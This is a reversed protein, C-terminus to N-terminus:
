DDPDEARTETRGVPGQSIHTGYPIDQPVDRVSAVRAVRWSAGSKELVLQQRRRGGSLQEDVAIAVADAPAPEEGLLVWARLDRGRARLDAALTSREPYRRRMEDSLCDLYAAADADKLARFYAQACDAPTAFVPGGAAKRWALTLALLAVLPLCLLLKKV